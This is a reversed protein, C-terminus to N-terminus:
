EDEELAADILGWVEDSDMAVLVELLVRKEAPDSSERYLELLGADHGAVMMGETAAHRVEISDSGRYVELLTQGVDDGGIIGLAKIAEQQRAPDSDDRALETLTEADGSIAYAEILARSVGVEDRLRRLQDTADMAGLVDVAADFDAPDNAALAAEYVAEADGAILYAELVARRTGGSGDRYIGALSAVAEDDGSIGIMRIAELAIEDSGSAATEVLVSAADPHEIQSLLFLAHKRVRTSNGPNRLARAALPLAREPPATVLAELATLKLEETASAPAQAAAPWAALVILMAVTIRNRRKM